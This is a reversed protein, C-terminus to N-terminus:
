KINFVMNTLFNRILKKNKDFNKKKFLINEIM